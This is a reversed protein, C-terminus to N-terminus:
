PSGAVLTMYTSSPATRSETKDMCALFGHDRHELVSVEETLPTERTLRPAHRRRRRHSGACDDGDFFVVHHPLEMRLRPERILEERVHQRPVDADFFFEDVLQEVRTLFSEGPRM